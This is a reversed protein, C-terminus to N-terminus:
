PIEFVMEFNSCVPWSSPTTVTVIILWMFLDDAQNIETSKLPKIFPEKGLGGLLSQGM